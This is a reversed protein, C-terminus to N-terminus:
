GEAGTTNKKGQNGEYNSSELEYKVEQSTPLGKESVSDSQTVSGHSGFPRADLGPEENYAGQNRSAMRYSICDVAM